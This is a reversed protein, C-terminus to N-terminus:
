CKLRSVNSLWETWRSNILPALILAPQGAQLGSTTSIRSETSLIQSFLASTM